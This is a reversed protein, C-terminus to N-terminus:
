WHHLKRKEIFDFFKADLNDVQEGTYGQRLQTEESLQFLAQALQKSKIM